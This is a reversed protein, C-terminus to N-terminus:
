YKRGKWSFGGVLSWVAVIVIYWPYILQLLPYYLMNEQQKFFQNGSLLIPLDILTKFGILILFPYTAHIIISYVLSGIILLNFLFVLVAVMKSFRSTYSSTKSAWRVRQNFFAALSEPAATSAIAQPSKMFQISSAGYKQEIAEMLFQDDGSALDSEYVQKEVELAISRQYGMNAANLMMPKGLIIAAAGSTILSVFELSMLKSLLRSDTQFGVPAAVLKAKTKQFFANYYTLLETGIRVDADFQIIYDATAESLGKQVAKKKGLSSHLLKCTLASKAMLKQLLAVSQDTSNDDIFIVELLKKPYNQSAIDHFLNELNEDENRFPIILSFRNQHNSKTYRECSFRPYKHWVIGLYIILLAYLISIILAIYFLGDM